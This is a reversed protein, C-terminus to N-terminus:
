LSLVCNPCSSKVPAPRPQVPQPRPRPQVHPHPRFTESQSQPRYVTEAIQQAPAPDSTTLGVVAIAVFPLAPLLLKIPTLAAIRM